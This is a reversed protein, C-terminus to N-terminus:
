VPPADTWEWTTWVNGAADWHWLLFAPQPQESM